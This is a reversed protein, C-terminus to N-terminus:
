KGRMTMMGPANYSQPPDAIGTPLMVTWLWESELSLWYDDDNPTNKPVWLWESELSLWYDDDNPTNKPVM